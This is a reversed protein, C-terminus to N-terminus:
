NYVCQEATIGAIRIFLVFLTIALIVMIVEFIKGGVMHSIKQTHM